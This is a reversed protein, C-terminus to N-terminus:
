ELVHVFPVDLSIFLPRAPVSWSKSIEVCTLTISTSTTSTNTATYHTIVLVLLSTLATTATTTITITLATTTTTTTTISSCYHCNFTCSSCSSTSTTSTSPATTTTIILATTTTNSCSRITRFSAFTTPSYFDNPMSSIFFQCVMKAIYANSDETPAMGPGVMKHTKALEKSFRGGRACPSAKVRM